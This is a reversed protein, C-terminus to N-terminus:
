APISEVVFEGIASQYEKLESKLSKVKQKQEDEIAKIQDKVAKIKKDYEDVKEKRKEELLTVEDNLSGLNTVFGALGKKIEAVRNLAQEHEEQNAIKM